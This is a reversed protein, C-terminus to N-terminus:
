SARSQSRAGSVPSVVYAGERARGRAAPSPFRHGPGAAKVPPVLSVLDVEPREYPPEPMELFAPM